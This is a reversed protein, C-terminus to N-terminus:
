KTWSVKPIDFHETLSDLHQNFKEVRQKHTMEAKQLIRQKKMKDQMKQFAIEAKTRKDENVQQVQQKVEAHIVKETEKKSKKKKKKKVGSDDKLKLKAKNVCAYEDEEGM